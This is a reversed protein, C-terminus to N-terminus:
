KGEKKEIYSLVEQSATIGNTICPSMGDGSVQHAGAFFLGDIYNENMHMDTRAVVSDEMTHLYGYVAGLHAGTYHSITVPTEIIIELIHDKLNVGLRKSEQEIFLDAVKNKMMEYDDETVNQWADVRPMATISYITTGKPSCEPNVLSLCIATIFDTSMPDLSDKWITDFDMGKKATFVSYDHINLKEPDEDLLLVVSFATLSMKRFNTIKKAQAPVESLPEIMKSYVTNPYAGSIVIESEIIEGNSLKVGKAKGNEVLIKDVHQGFEIDVGLEHCKEAMKLSMEHSTSKPVSPGFGLYDALLYGYLIMSLESPRNGVYVWYASLVEQAKAPVKCADMVEKSSYGACRVMDPFQMLLEPKTYKRKGMADVADHVKLCLNLFKLVAEYAQDKDDCVSAIEKSINEFNGNEGAHLLVNYEPTILRFAEPIHIWDIDIGFSKFFEGTALQSNNGISMMEHLTAEFEVGGRVFSTAVGGPMNHQELILIDKMGSKALKLACAMNSLSCGILVAKKKKPYYNNEM